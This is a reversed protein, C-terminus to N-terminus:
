LCLIFISLLCVTILSVWDRKHLALEPDTRNETFGRAEMAAALNDAREFTRRMLPFALKTLRYVPNKRTEVGRAKQADAIEGAQHFIVPVFRLILGMMLGVKKEPILPLPKLYWQVAAKIASPRTTSMFAFGLTVIIVLRWCVLVGSSVGQVSIKVFGLNIAPAGGTSLVRALFVLFLLLLFFRLEKLGSLLPLRVRFSLGLLLGTLIGLKLFHLQLCILSISIVFLIKLRVDLRHLLSDGSRYGFRTLEAM